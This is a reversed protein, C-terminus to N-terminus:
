VREERERQERVGLEREREARKSWAGSYNVDIFREGGGRRM